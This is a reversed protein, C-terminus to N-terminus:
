RDEGREQGHLAELIDPGYTQLRWPGLLGLARLDEMNGPNAKAIAMLKRNTMVVDPDVGRAQAKQTRWQRLAEYRALAADDPRQGDHRNPFPPPPAQRGRQIIHLLKRALHGPFRRPFGPLARLQEETQPMERALTMLLDNRLIRYPPVNRQSARQERWDFLAKLVAQQQPELDRAGSLRWFSPAAKAEWRIARLEDFVEQAEQWRGSERLERAIADRLPLLFHTDLRAYALQEPSLPRKGWDTRQMRKDLTIGFRKKLISALGPNSWGLIRAGWLTDFVRGFTWGFDRHLLLIDNEAAHMTVEVDTRAVLDGLPELERLALPDIIVDREDTSIQILCVQYHYAYMSNSETDLAFRGAEELEALLLKLQHPQTIVLPPPLQQSPM